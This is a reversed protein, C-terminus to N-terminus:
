CFLIARRRDHAHFGGVWESVAGVIDGNGGAKARPKGEVMSASM